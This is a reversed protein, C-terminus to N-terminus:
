GEKNLWHGYMSQLEAEPLNPLWVAEDMFGRPTKVPGGGVTLSCKTEGGLTPALYVNERLRQLHFGGFIYVDM